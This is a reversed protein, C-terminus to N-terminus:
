AADAGMTEKLHAKLMEDLDGDLVANPDSSEFGSRQDQSAQAPPV